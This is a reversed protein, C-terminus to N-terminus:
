FTWGLVMVTFDLLPWGRTVLVSAAMFDLSMADNKAVSFAALGVGTVSSSYVLTNSNSTATSSDACAVSTLTFLAVRRSKGTALM